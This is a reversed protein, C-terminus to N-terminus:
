ATDCFKWAGREMSERALAWFATSTRRAEIVPRRGVQAAAGDRHQVFFGALNALAGERQGQRRLKYPRFSLDDRFVYVSTPM